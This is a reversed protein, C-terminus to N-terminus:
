WLYFYVTVNFPERVSNARTKLDQNVTRLEIVAYTLPWTGQEVCLHPTLNSFHHDEINDIDMVLHLIYTRWISCRWATLGPPWVHAWSLANKYCCQSHAFNIKSASFVVRACLPGQGVYKCIQFTTINSQWFLISTQLIYAKRERNNGHEDNIDSVNGPPLLHDAWGTLGSWYKGAESDWQGAQDDWVSWMKPRPLWLCFLSHSSYVDLILHFTPHCLPDQTHRAQM